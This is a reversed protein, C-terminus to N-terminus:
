ALPLGVAISGLNRRLDAVSGNMKVLKELIEKAEKEDIHEWDGDLRGLIDEIADVKYNRWFVRHM